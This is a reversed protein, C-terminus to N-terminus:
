AANFAANFACTASSWCRSSTASPSTICALAVGQWRSVITIQLQLPQVSLYSWINGGLGQGLQLIVTGSQCAGMNNSTRRAHAQQM